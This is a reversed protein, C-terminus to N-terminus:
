LCIGALIQGVLHVYCSLSSRRPGWNHSDVSTSVLTLVYRRWAAFRNVSLPPRLESRHSSTLSRHLCAVIATLSLSHSPAYSSYFYLTKKMRLKWCMKTALWETSLHYESSRSFSTLRGFRYCWCLSSMSFSVFSCISCRVGLPPCISDVIM